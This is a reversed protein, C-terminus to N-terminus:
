LRAQLSSLEGRSVAPAGNFGMDIARRITSYCECVMEQLKERDLVKIVARRYDIAGTDRLMTAATTVSSRRVGLMEALAEQSLQIDDACRDASLLLVRSLRSILYHLANCATIQQVHAMVSMHYHNISEKLKASDDLMHRFMPGPMRLASGPLQVRASTFAHLSGFGDLTGLAGDRGIGVTEVSTGEELVAMLSVIGNQLFYVQEIKEGPQHLLDGPLLLVERLHPALLALDDPALAALLGNRIHSNQVTTMPESRCNRAPTRRRPRILTRERVHANPGRITRYGDEVKFHPSGRELVSPAHSGLLRNPQRRESARKLFAAPHRQNGVVENAPWASFACRDQSAHFAGWLFAGGPRPSLDLRFTPITLFGRPRLRCRVTDSNPRRRRIDALTGVAPHLEMLRIADDAETRPPSPSPQRSGGQSLQSCM